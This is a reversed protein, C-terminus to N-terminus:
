FTEVQQSGIHINSLLLECIIVKEELLAHQPFCILQVCNEFVELLCITHNEIPEFRVNINKMCRTKHLHAQWSDHAEVYAGKGRFIKYNGDQKISQVDGRPFVHEDFESTFEGVPGKM